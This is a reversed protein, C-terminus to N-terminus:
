QSTPKRSELDAIRLSDWYRTTKLLAIENQLSDINEPCEPCPQMADYFEEATVPEPRAAYAILCSVVVLVIWAM